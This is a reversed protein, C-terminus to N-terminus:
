KKKERERSKRDAALVLQELNLGEVEIKDKLEGAWKLFVEAAAKKDHVKFKRIVGIKTRDEGHSEFLDEFDFAHLARRLNDPWDKLRRLDGNEDFADALNATSIAEMEAVTRLARDKLEARHREFRQDILERHTTVLQHAYRSANARNKLAFGAALASETQNGYSPSGPTTYADIFALTRPSRPGKPAAM